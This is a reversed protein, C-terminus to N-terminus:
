LGGVNNVFGNLDGNFLSKEDGTALMEQLKDWDGTYSAEALLKPDPTPMPIMSSPMGTAAFM